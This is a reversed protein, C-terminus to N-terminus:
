QKSEPPPAPKKKAAILRSRVEDQLPGRISWVREYTDRLMNPEVAMAQWKNFLAGDGNSLQLNSPVPLFFAFGLEVQPYGLASSGGPLYGSYFPRGHAVDAVLKDALEVEGLLGRAWAACLQLYDWHDEQIHGNNERTENLMQSYREIIELAISKAHTRGTAKFAVSAIGVISFLAHECDFWKRKPDYWMEVMERTVDRIHSELIEQWAEQEERHRYKSMNSSHQYAAPIGKFILFSIEYIAETYSKVSAWDAGPSFTVAKLLDVIEILKDTAVRRQWDDKFDWSLICTCIDQLTYRESSTKVSLVSAPDKLEFSLPRPLSQQLLVMEKVGECIHDSAVVAIKAPQILAFLWIKLIKILCDGALAFHYASPQQMCKRHIGEFGPLVTIRVHEGHGALISANTLLSMQELAESAATSRMLTHSLNFGEVLLGFWHVFLPHSRPYDIKDKDIPGGLRLAIRGIAGTTTVVNTILYQNPAKATAAMLVALHDDLYSFFADSTGFYKSRPTAYFDAVRILATVSEVFMEHENDRFAKHAANFIGAVMKIALQPPRAPPATLVVREPNRWDLGFFLMPKWFGSPKGIPTGFSHAVKRGIHGGVYRMASDAQIGKNAVLVTLVLCSLVAMVLFITARPLGNPFGLLFSLYLAVLVGITFRQLLRVTPHAAIETTITTSYRGLLQAFMFNFLAVQAALVVSTLTMLQKLTDSYATYESTGPTVIHSSTLSLIIIAIASPFLSFLWATWRYIALYDSQKYERFRSQYTHYRNALRNLFAYNHIVSQTIAVFVTASAITIATVFTAYAPNKSAAIRGALLLGFSILSAALYTFWFTQNRRQATQLKAVLQEGQKAADSELSQRLFELM